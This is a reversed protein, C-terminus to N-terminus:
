PRKWHRQHLVMPEFQPRQRTILRRYRAFAPAEQGDEFMRVIQRMEAELESGAGSMPQDRWFSRERFSRWLQARPDLCTVYWPKTVPGLFHCLRAEPVIDNRRGQVAFNCSVPYNWSQPLLGIRGNCVRNIVDQDPYGFDKMTQYCEMARGLINEQRWLQLNMLLVGSNVYRKVEPLRRRHMAELPDPVGAALLSGLDAQWLEAISGRCIIDGDLYLIKQVEDGLIKPLLLRYNVAVPYPSDMSSFFKMEPWDAPIKHVQVGAVNRYLKVFHELRVLDKPQVEDVLLHFVIRSDLNNWVVSTMSIGLMPVYKSDGCFVIHMPEQAM